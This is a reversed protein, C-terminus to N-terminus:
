GSRVATLRLSLVAGHALEGGIRCRAVGTADREDLQAVDADREAADVGDVPHGDVQERALHDGEDTAVSGALRRQHVRQRTSVRGVRALDADVALRDDDVVRAVRSRVPDLDDVLLEGQGVVDVGSPVDEETPFQQGAAAREVVVRHCRGRLLHHLPQVRPELVELRRHPRQRAPLALRHRDGPGDM